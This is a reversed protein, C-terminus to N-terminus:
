QPQVHEGGPTEQPIQFHFRAGKGEDCEVWIRGEHREVIEKCIALGLGTGKYGEGENSRNIQVFKNFLEPIRDKPIGRGDDIVSLRVYKRATLVSVGGAALPGPDGSPPGKGSGSPAEEEVAEATILIRSATFRAANDILNSLVQIFLESDAHILPLGPPIRQEIRINREMALLQFGLVTDWVIQAANLPRPDIRAKGSELRALDLINDLIKELRLINKYQLLMMDAQQETIPGTLGDKVNSSTAKIITLPNRMEHSVASMLEDKLKDMRRRELIEAKLQELRRLDTIDRISALRAPEDEWEIESVKMEAVREVGETRLVLEGSDQSPLPYPFPKGLMPEGGRGFLARAAPNLFRVMRKSDVVVMADAAGEIVNKLRALMRHREVAYSITRKLAHGDINGKVQYDQAGQAVAELGMAEDRLGTLVVLPVDPFGSRVARVTEIGRSDPLMLDLLVVEIGGKALVALGSALDEACDLTFRFSPWTSRAMLNMLLLTDEPDDEVLLARIVKEKM